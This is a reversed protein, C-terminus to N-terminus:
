EDPRSRGFRDWCLFSAQAALTLYGLAALLGIPELRTMWTSGGIAHGVALLVALWASAPHRWFLILPAFVALWLGAALLFWRPGFRLVARALPNAELPEAHDGAWWAAPQGTITLTVDALYLVAAPALLWLRGRDMKLRGCPAVHNLSGFSQRISWAATGSDLFESGIHESAV